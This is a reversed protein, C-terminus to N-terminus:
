RTMNGPLMMRGQRINQVSQNTLGLGRPNTLGCNAGYIDVNCNMQSDMSASTATCPKCSVKKVAYAQNARMLNNANSILFQRYDYSNSINNADIIEQNVVCKPRYDTFTRGDSMLAPCGFYQNNSTYNCNGTPCNM